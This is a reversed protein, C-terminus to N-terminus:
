SPTMIGDLVQQGMRWVWEVAAEETVDEPVDAAAVMAQVRTEVAEITPIADNATLRGSGILTSLWQQYDKLRREGNPERKLAHVFSGPATEVAKVRQPGCIPFRERVGNEGGTMLLIAAGERITLDFKELAAYIRDRDNDLVTVVTFPIQHWMCVFMQFHANRPKGPPYYWHELAEYFPLVMPRQSASVLTWYKKCTAFETLEQWSAVEYSRRREEPHEVLKARWVGDQKFDTPDFRQQKAM